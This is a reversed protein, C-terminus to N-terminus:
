MPQNSNCQQQVAPLSWLYFHECQRKDNRNWEVSIAIFLRFFPGEVKASNLREGITADLCPTM